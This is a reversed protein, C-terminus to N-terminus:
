SVLSCRLTINYKLTSSVLNLVLLCCVIEVTTLQSYVFLSYLHSQTHEGLYVIGSQLLSLFPNISLALPEKAILLRSCSQSYMVRDSKSEASLM